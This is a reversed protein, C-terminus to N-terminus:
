KKEQELSIAYKYLLKVQYANEFDIDHTNIYEKIESKHNKFVKKFTRKSAYYIKDNKVIVPDISLTYPANKFSRIKTFTDHMANEGSGGVISSAETVSAVESTGGYPTSAAPKRVNLEKVVGFSYEGNQSLLVAYSNNIRKYITNNSVLLVVDHNNGLALTDNKENIFWITQTTTIINVKGSQISGDKLYIAGNSFKNMVFLLSDPINGNIIGNQDAMLNGHIHQSYSNTISFLMTLILLLKLINKM